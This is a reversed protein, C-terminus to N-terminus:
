VGGILKWSTKTMFLYENSIPQAYKSFSSARLHCKVTSFSFFTITMPSSTIHPANLSPRGRKVSGINFIQKRM